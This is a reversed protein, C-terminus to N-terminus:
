PGNQIVVPAVMGPQMPMMGPQMPIMGPQMPMMGPQQMQQMQMQMQQQQMQMNMQMQQQKLRELEADKEALEAAQTQSERPQWIATFRIAGNDKGKVTVRFWDDFDPICLSSLKITAEGMLEDNMVTNKNMLRMTFDDGIYKVDYEFTENFKPEKGGNTCTKTKFREMRHEIEVYPDMDGFTNLDTEVRAEVVTVLLKGATAM